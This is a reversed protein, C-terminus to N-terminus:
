APCKAGTELWAKILAGFQEQTGPAPTRNGGPNWAWGVLEDHTMHELLEARNMGSRSPDLLQRCIEGLTRGQWAMKAPALSWHRSGPVGSANYNAANHCTTCRLLQDGGGDAGRTVAPVHQRMADTQTPRDSRPHCNLCRPHGIVRGAENFYAISREAPDGISAFDGIARLDAVAPTKEVADLAEAEPLSKPRFAIGAALVLSAIILLVLTGCGPRRRAMM